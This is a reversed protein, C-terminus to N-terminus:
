SRENTIAQIEAQAAAVARQLLSAARDEPLAVEELDVAVFVYRGLDDRVRGLRVAVDLPVADDRVLDALMDDASELRNMALHVGATDPSGALLEEVGRICRDLERLDIVIAGGPNPRGPAAFPEVLTARFRPAM